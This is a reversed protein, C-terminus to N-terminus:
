RYGKRLTGESQLFEDSFIISDNMYNSNPKNEGEIELSEEIIVEFKNSSIEAFLDLDEDLFNLLYHKENKTEISIQNKKGLSDSFSFRKIEKFYLSDFELLNSQLSVHEDLVVVEFIDPTKIEENQHYINGSVRFPKILYNQFDRKYEEKEAFPYDFAKEM